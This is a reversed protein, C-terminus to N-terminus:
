QAGLVCLAVYIYSKINIAFVMESFFSIFCLVSAGFCLYNQLHLFFFQTFLTLPM